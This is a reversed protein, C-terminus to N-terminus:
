GQAPAQARVRAFIDLLETFDVSVSSDTPQLAVFADLLGHIQDLDAHSGVVEIDSALYGREPAPEDKAAADIGAPRPEAPATPRPSLDIRLKDSVSAIEDASLRGSLYAVLDEQRSQGFALRYVALSRRLRAVWNADKSLGPVPLHRQITAGDTAQYIWYPVLDSHKADRGQEAARFMQQWPDAAGAAFAAKSHTAAVNRRVAHNKYRHVRGERQEMDVPNAPINWHVVAHCYHHFDLGEQGVSTSCLVFPWFPSNFARRVVDDREGADGEDGARVGFRVAFRSRFARPESRVSVSRTEPNAEVVDVGLNATRTRLAASIEKSVAVAIDELSRGRKGTADVLLHAYEDLLAQVSGEAACRLVKQWYPDDSPTRNVVAQNEPLNFFTLWADAMAGAANRLVVRSCRQLDGTARGLTRLATVGLGALALWALVDFLDDPPAGLSRWDALRRAEALHAQWADDGREAEHPEAEDHRAHTPPRWADRLSAQGFWRRAAEEDSARDLLLPAAWYWSQDSGGGQTPWGLSDFRQRLRVAIAGHVDEMTPSEGTGAQLEAAIALPDYEGALVFGPYILGLIAMNAASGEQLSFRLPRRFRERADKATLAQEQATPGLLRREAEYSLLSAVVKPVVQWASFILRKTLREARGSFGGEARYYPCSPPIWPVDWAGVSDLDAILSRLRSNAPDCVAYQQIAQWPLLADGAASVVDFLQKGGDVALAAEFKRKLDYDEMFNLLYPASKWYEICDGALTLRGIQQLALFQEVDNGLIGPAAASVETLMGNRDATVALRETRVMVRRLEDEIGNRLNRLTAGDSSSYRVLERRYDALSATFAATREQSAQLFGVTKVFDRFHDDGDSEDHLTYM